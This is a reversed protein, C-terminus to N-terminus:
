NRPLINSFQYEYVRHGLCVEYDNEGWQEISLIDNGTEDTYDWKFMEKGPEQNRFFRAGGTEELFYTKGDHVLTDPPEDTERIQRRVREDLAAFPLKRTVCWFDEDDPERELFLTDDHSSIQWEYTIDGSGWDYHNVSTVEWTTLDYDVFYGSKMTALTLDSLPDPIEPPKKRFFDFLGMDM